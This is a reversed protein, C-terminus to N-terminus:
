WPYCNVVKDRFKAVPQTTQCFAANIECMLPKPDWCSAQAPAASAVSLGSALVGAALVIRIKKM